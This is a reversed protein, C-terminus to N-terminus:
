YGRTFQAFCEILAGGTGASHSGGEKELESLASTLFVRGQIWASGEKGFESGYAREKGRIVPVAKTLTAPSELM